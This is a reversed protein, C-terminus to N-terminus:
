TNRRAARDRKRKWAEEKAQEADALVHKEQRISETISFGVTETESRFKTPGDGTTLEFGQLLAARVIQPLAVALRDIAAAAM